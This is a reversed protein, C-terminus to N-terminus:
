PLSPTEKRLQQYYPTGQEDLYKAAQEPTLEGKTLQEVTPDLYKSPFEWLNLCLPYPCYSPGALEAAKVRVEYGPPAWEPKMVADAHAAEKLVPTEYAGQGIALQGEKTVSMFRAFEWALKHNKSKAAIQNTAWMCNLNPRYGKEVMPLFTVGWKFPLDRYGWGADWDGGIDMAVRGAGFAGGFAGYGGQEAFPVMSGDVFGLDYWHKLVSIGTPSDFVTKEPYAQPVAWFDEPKHLWWMWGVEDLVTGWQGGWQPKSPDTLKKAVARFDDWTWDENPYPEGAEDFIEMNYFLVPVWTGLTLNFIRTTGYKAQIPDRMDVTFLEPKTLDPDAEFYPTLDLLEGELAYRLMSFDGYIVDPPTGAAMLAAMKDWCEGYPLFTLTVEVGPNAQQFADRIAERSQNAPGLDYSYYEIKGVEPAVPTPQPAETATAKPAPTQAPACASLFLGAGAAVATGYFLQRRSLVKGGM